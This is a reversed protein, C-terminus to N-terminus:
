RTSPPTHTRSPSRPCAMTQRALEGPQQRGPHLDHEGLKDHEAQRDPSPRGLQIGDGTVPTKRRRGNLANAVASIEEANWRRSRSPRVRM